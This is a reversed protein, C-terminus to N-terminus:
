KRKILNRMMDFSNGDPEFESLRGSLVDKAVLYGFENIGKICLKFSEAKTKSEAEIMQNSHLWNAYYDEFPFSDNLLFEEYIHKFRELLETLLEGKSCSPVMLYDNLHTISPLSPDALLNVGVGILVHNVRKQHSQLCNVLIGSLKGILKDNECLYVDNPWKIRARLGSNSFKFSNITETLALAMLFQLLTLRHSLNMPHEVKLTFQLCAPSSIWFNNSRGKGCIQHDAVYVSYNPLEDLLEPENLLITQTSTCIPSYLLNFKKSNLSFSSNDDNKIIFEISKDNLSKFNQNNTFIKITELVDEGEGEGEGEKTEEEAVKLGLKRLIDKVVTKREVEYKLLESFVNKDKMLCDIPDYEFHVGSLCFNDEKLLIIPQNNEYSAYIFDPHAQPFYCGGNYAVKLSKKNITTIKISQISSQCNIIDDSYYFLKGTELAGKACSDILKLPRGGKVEYGARGLEFEVTDAAFYAGACIGLYKVNGKLRKFFNTGVFEDLYALDRGGPMVFLACSEDWPIRENKLVDANVLKVDYSSKLFRKLTRFTQNVSFECTGPGSYILVNLIASM